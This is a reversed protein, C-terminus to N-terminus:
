QAVSRKADGLRRHPHFQLYLAAFSLVVGGALLLVAGWIWAASLRVYTRTLWRGPYTGSVVNDRFDSLMRLVAVRPSWRSLSVYNPVLGTEYRIEIQKSSRPPVTVELSLHSLDRGYPSPLGDVFVQLGSSFDEERLLHFRKPEDGSNHLTIKRSALRVDTSGDERDKELYLQDAITGLSRWQVNAELRKVREATENFADIGKAFFSEHAYFLMTNGLFADIALQGQPIASEVSYRRMSPFTSFALTETRLAFDLGPSAAKDSPVDLSNATALFNAQKLADLTAGPAISHPFIMVRDYPIGTLQSFRDMRALGQAINRRQQELPHKVLPGFEQHDHNNGHVAVSLRAPYNRFLSVVEAHSRDFNWPIFAVTVHFDHAEAESLIARYNVHGYPERLWLDDITLNAFAGSSHWVRDGGAYRLVLMPGAVDAFVEQQRYPDATVPIASSETEAEFFVEQGPSKSRALVLMDTEGFKAEMVRDADERVNLGLGSARDGYIPLVSHSLQRTVGPTDAIFYHGSTTTFASRHCGVIKGGSWLELLAPNTRENVGVVFVPIAHSRQRLRVMLDNYGVSALAEADVVVAVIAPDKAYTFLAAKGSKNVSGVTEINLGYFTAVARVSQGSDARSESGAVYLLSAAHASAFLSTALFAAACRRLMRTKSRNPLANM